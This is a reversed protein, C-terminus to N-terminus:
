LRHDVFMIEVLFNLKSKKLHWLDFYHIVQKLKERMYKAIQNHRDSIFTHLALGGGLLYTMCRQFAEFEMGQSSGVENRQLFFM